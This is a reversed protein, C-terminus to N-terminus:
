EKSRQLKQLREKAENLAKPSTEKELILIVNELEKSTPEKYPNEKNKTKPNLSDFAQEFKKPKQEKRPLRQAEGTEVKLLHAIARERHSFKSQPEKLKAEGEFFRKLSNLIYKYDKKLVVSITDIFEIQANIFDTKELGPHKTKEEEFHNLFNDKFLSKNIGGKPSYTYLKGYEDIKTSVFVRFEDITRVEPYNSEIKDYVNGGSYRSIFNILEFEEKVSENLGKEM